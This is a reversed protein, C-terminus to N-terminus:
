PWVRLWGQSGYLPIPVSMKFVTSGDAFVFAPAMGLRMSRISGHLSDNALGLSRLQVYAFAVSM